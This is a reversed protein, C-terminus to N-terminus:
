NSYSELREDVKAAADEKAAKRALTASRKKIELSALTVGGGAGIKSIYDDHHHVYYRVLSDIEKIDSTNSIGLRESVASVLKPFQYNQENFNWEKLAAETAEFITACKDTLQKITKMKM